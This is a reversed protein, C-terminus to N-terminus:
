ATEGLQVELPPTAALAPAVHSTFVVIGGRRSHEGLLRDLTATGDSDLADYPEDLLWLAAGTEVALRALAVRRRQGQSLTRM